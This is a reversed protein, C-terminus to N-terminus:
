CIKVVREFNSKIIGDFINSNQPGNLMSLIKAPKNTLMLENAYLSIIYARVKTM